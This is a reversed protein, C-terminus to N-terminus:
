TTPAATAISPRTSGRRCSAKSRAAASCPSSSIPPPRSAQAWYGVGIQARTRPDRVANFYDGPDARFQRATRFGLRRLLREVYRAVPILGKAEWVTIRMGRVHARAILERARALDLRYPCYYRYGPFNPPLMQCTPQYLRTGGEVRVVADRDAAYNLARRVRLDDFPSQRTNLFMYVTAARLGGHLQTPYRTLLTKAEAPTVVAGTYDARGSEVARLAAHDSAPVVTIADAYGDPRNATARFHPNRVLRVVGREVQAIEYPGTAPLPRRIRRARVDAPVAVAYTQALKYLFDPDPSALRFRITGAADDTEIGASLDCRKPRKACAADGRIGSYFDTAGSARAISARIDSARVPAGTSYRLGRRLQFSYTRGGDTVTPMSTALDPALTAGARGGARRFAVLGDNTLTQIQAAQSSYSSAPDLDAPTEFRGDESPLMVRLTGGRHRAGNGRVGVWLSGGAVALGQPQLAIRLTRDVANRTPDIRTITRSLEDSVWVHGAGVAVNTPGTHAGLPVIRTQTRTAPDIRSVTGDRSNAVWLSGEGFALGSAGGGVNTSGLVDGTAARVQAVSGPTGTSAWVSGGGCALQEPRSDLAIKRSSRSVPDFRVLARDYSSAVWVRGAAVCVGTPGNVHIRYVVANTRPSVWSVTGGIGNVVWVGGAGAAVADPGDGVAIAQQVRTRLDIRSVTAGDVSTAWLSGFGVAVHAPSPGVQVGASLSFDSADIVAVGDRDPVALTLVTGARHALLAISGALIVVAAALGILIQRSVRRGRRRAPQSPRGLAARAASVMEAGSQWRDDPDKALARSTVADLAPALGPRRDSAVPPAEELHAYITAVDSTRAFPREGTLCEFLVCGLSYLDSRHDVAEGRIREPAMYGVTGVLGDSATAETRTEVEKVLGFDALYAHEVSGERAILVNSPKVDRHLLGHAHAVDLADAVQAVLDVAREPELAGERRLLAALDVGEVYRMAIFLHGDIEGAEYVPVIGAHGIAAALRSETLFRRRMRADGAGDRTLLKLAVMRGLRLDAARYVVGMGGQGLVAEIRYSGLQQGVGLESV